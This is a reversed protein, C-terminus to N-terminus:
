IPGKMAQDHRPHFPPFKRYVFLRGSKFTVRGAAAAVAIAAEAVQLVEIGLAVDEDVGIVDHRHM